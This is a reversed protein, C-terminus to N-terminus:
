PQPPPIASPPPPPLPQGGAQPPAPMPQQAMTQRQQQAMQQLMAQQTALTTKQVHLSKRQSRRVLRYPIMFIGFLFFVVFYWILLFSWMFLLAFAGLVWALVAYSPSRQATKGAWAVIRRTSGVYSMPSAYTQSKVVPETPLGLREPDQYGTAQYAVGHEPSQQYAQYTQFAYRYGDDTLPWRGYTKTQDYVAYEQSSKAFMIAGAAAIVTWAQLAQGASPAEPTMPAPEPTSGGSQMDTM